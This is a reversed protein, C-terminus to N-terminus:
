PNILTLSLKLHGVDQGHESIDITVSEGSKAQGTFHVERAIFTTATLSHSNDKPSVTSALRTVPLYGDFTILGGTGVNATIELAIGRNRVEFADPAAGDKIRYRVERILLIVAKQGPKTTISPLELKTAPPKHLARLAEVAPAGTVSATVEIKPAALTSATFIFSAILALLKM